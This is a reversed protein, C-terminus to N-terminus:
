RKRVEDDSMVLGRAAVWDHVKAREQNRGDRRGILYAILGVAFGALFEIM